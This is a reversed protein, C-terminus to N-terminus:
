ARHSKNNSDHRAGKSEISTRIVHAAQAPLFYQYVPVSHLASQADYDLQYLSFYDPKLAEPLETRSVIELLKANQLTTILTRDIASLHERTSTDLNTVQEPRTFVQELWGHTYLGTPTLIEIGRHSLEKMIEELRIAQRPASPRTARIALHHATFGYVYNWHQIVQTAHGADSQDIFLRLVQGNRLIKYLLWANWGDDFQYFDAGPMQALTYGHHQILLDRVQEASNDRSSGCRIALHDFHVHWQREEALQLLAIDAHSNLLSEICKVATYIDLHSIWRAILRAETDSFHDIANEIVQECFQIAHQSTRSYIELSDEFPLQQRAVYYAEILQPLTQVPAFLESASNDAPHARFPTLDFSAYRGDQKELLVIQPQENDRVLRPNQQCSWEALRCAFQHHTDPMATGNMFYVLAGPISSLATVCCANDPQSYKISGRFSLPEATCSQAAM